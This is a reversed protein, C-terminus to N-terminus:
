RRRRFLALLGLAGLLTASPEPVSTLRFYTLDGDFGTGSIAVGVSNIDENLLETATRVVTYTGSAPLKAFWTATWNGTGGTTDLVVRMDIGVSFTTALTADSWNLSTSPMAGANNGSSANGLHTVNGFHGTTDAGGYLMWAKGIVNTSLFRDSNTSGTSQGEAFGLAIWDQEPAGVTATASLNRFSADLTYTFGDAPMFALTASGAGETFDGDAQFRSTAAVWNNAGTTPSTGNLVSTGAGPTFSQEYIVTAAHATPVALTLTALGLLLSKATLHSQPIKSPLSPIIPARPIRRAQRNRLRLQHCLSTRSRSHGRCRSASLICRATLKPKMITKSKMKMFAHKAALPRFAIEPILIRISQWGPASM